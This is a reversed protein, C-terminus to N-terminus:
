FLEQELEAEDADLMTVTVEAPKSKGAMYKAMRKPLEVNVKNAVEAQQAPSLKASKNLVGEKQAELANQQKAQDAAAHAQAGAVGAAVQAKVKQKIGVMKKAVDVNSQARMQAELAIKATGRAGATAAAIKKNETNMLAAQQANVQKAVKAAAATAIKAKANVGNNAMKATIKGAKVKAEKVNAALMEKTYKATLERRLQERYADSETNKKKKGKAGKGDGYKLPNQAERVDLLLEPAQRTLESSIICPSQAPGGEVVLCIHSGALRAGNLIDGRLKIEVWTNQADPFKSTVGTSVRQKILGLSRTYTLRGRSWNCSSIKVTAPGGYGGYKFLKLKGEVVTDASRLVRTPFKMFAYQERSYGSQIRLFGQHSAMQPLKGHARNAPLGAVSSHQARAKIWAHYDKNYALQLRHREDSRKRLDKNLVAIIGSHKKSNAARRKDYEVRAARREKEIRIRRKNAQEKNKQEVARKQAREKAKRGREKNTREKNAKEKKSREAAKESREKKEKKEAVQVCASTRSYATEYRRRYFHGKNHTDYTFCQRGHRPYQYVSYGKCHSHTCLRECQVKDQSGRHRRGSAWYGESSQKVFCKGKPQNKNGGKLKAAKEQVAKKAAAAKDAVAKKAAEAKAKV